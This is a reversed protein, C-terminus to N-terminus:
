KVGALRLTITTLEDWVHGAQLGKMMLELKACQQLLQCADQYTIHALAKKFLLKRNQWIGHQQCLKDFPQNQNNFAMSALTRIDRQLVWHVLIAPIAEEQLRQLIRQIAQAQADLATDVLTFIDFRASDTATALIDDISINKEKFILSLKTLEQDLAVLNGQNQEILLLIADHALHLNLTQSKAKVWAILQTPNMPWINLVIGADDIAKVWASKTTASELKNTIIVLLKNGPLNSCYNKLAKSGTTGPKANPMHLELLIKESFLSLNQSSNLLTQWNFNNDVFFQQRESFQQQRATMRLQDLVENKLLIEDSSILYIPALSKKIASSFQEFKLQM